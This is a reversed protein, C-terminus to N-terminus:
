FLGTWWPLPQKKAAYSERFGKFLSMLIPTAVLGIPSATIFQAMGGVGAAGAGRLFRVIMRNM